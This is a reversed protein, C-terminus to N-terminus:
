ARRGHCCTTYAKWGSAWSPLYSTQGKLEDASLTPAEPRTSRCPSRAALAMTAWSPVHRDWPLVLSGSPPPLAWALSPPLTRQGRRRRHSSLSMGPCPEATTSSRSSWSSMRSPRPWPWAPPPRTTACPTTSSMPWRRPGLLVHDAWILGSPGSPDPFSLSLTVRGSPSLAQDVGAIVAHLLAAPDCWNFDPRLTGAEISALHLINDVARALRSSEAVTGKM